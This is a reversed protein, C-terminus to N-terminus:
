IIKNNLKWDPMQSVVRMAEKNLWPDVGRMIAVDTVKGKTDIVFSIYVTGEVGNELPILPYVVSKALYSLLAGQGGPFEPKQDLIFIPVPEHDEEPEDFSTNVQVILDDTAETSFDPLDDSIDSGDDVIVLQEIPIQKPPPPLTKEKVMTIPPLDLEEVFSGQALLINKENQVSGWEFALLAAGLAVIFGIQLFMARKNELDAKRTKKADM